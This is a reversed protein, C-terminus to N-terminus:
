KRGQDKAKARATTTGETKQLIQASLLEDTGGISVCFPKLVKSHLVGVMFVFDGTKCTLAFTLSPPFTHMNCEM